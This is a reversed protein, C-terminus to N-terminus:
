QAIEPTNNKIQDLVDETKVVQAFGYALNMLSSLHMEEHATATADAVFQVRFDKCFAYRATTECCLNSMVGTIVLDTIGLCRLTIELDTGEFASYRHKQILKENELPKIDEFIRAGFSGEQCFDNWWWTLNGGDYRPSKHVHSTFILPLSRMRFLKQLSQINPVIEQAQRIFANGSEHIFYNQMDIILLATHLIDLEFKHLNCPQIATLWKETKKALDDM